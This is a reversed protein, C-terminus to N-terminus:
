PVHWDRDTAYRHFGGGLDDHIGGDAMARLTQLSMDLAPKARTRAYYRLLFNMLVPRPFKPAPSFGGASSDFSSRIDQYTRDLVKGDLGRSSGPRGAAAQAEILQKGSAAVEIIKDRNTAWQTDVRMLLSRFGPRGNRDDPPLYTAGFFPKLDPTLFVTMPWGGGGTTGVVYSMYVRDVDPREERDVKISVVIRKMLEAMAPDSFTETEMVHCWHCTSYGISLFIPKNERRAKEFAEDGWPYWDVPNHAHLQLYPSKENILRNTFRDVSQTTTTGQAVASASKAAAIALGGLLWRLRRTMRM